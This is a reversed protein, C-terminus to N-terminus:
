SAVLRAPLDFRALVLDRIEAAVTDPDRTADVLRCREPESQVLAKFGQRLKTHFAVGEREFRDLAGQQRSAVRALGVKPPLDLVLTLDPRDAGVTLHELALIFAPDVKGALGQYVRTADAFRDCIVWDGRTLAPLITSTLHDRRAAGFLITEAEPGFPEAAGSLLVHRIIEAGPSGGPERTLVSRIGHSELFEALRRAQTSKGAGEGGEFTIFRGRRAPEQTPHKDTM